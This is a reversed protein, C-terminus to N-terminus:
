LLFQIRRQIDEVHRETSMLRFAGREKAQAIEQLTVDPRVLDALIQDDRQSWIQSRATPDHRGRLFDLAVRPVGSAWFLASCVAHESHGTAAQLRAIAHNMQPLTATKPVVSSKDGRTPTPVMPSSIRNILAALGPDSQRRRAPTSTTSLQEDRQQSPRPSRSPTALSESHTRARAATPPQPDPAATTTSSDTEKRADFFRQLDERQRPDTVAQEWYSTFSDGAPADEEPDSEKRPPRPPSKEPRNAAPTTAKGQANTAHSPSTFLTKALSPPSATTAKATSTTARIARRTAPSSSHRPPTSRATQQRRETALPPTSVAPSAAAKGARQRRPPTGVSTLNTSATTKKVRKRGRGEIEENGDVPAEHVRSTSSSSRAPSGQRRKASRPEVKIIVREPSSPESAVAATPAVPATQPPATEEAQTNTAAPLGLIEQRQRAPLKVLKKRWREHMSQASHTTVQQSAAERWVRAPVSTHSYYMPYKDKIFRLMCADDDPTYKQRRLGPHMPLVEMPAMYEVLSPMTGRAATDTIYDAAVWDQGPRLQEREVIEVCGSTLQEVVQGGLKVILERLTARRDASLTRALYFKHGAFLRDASM